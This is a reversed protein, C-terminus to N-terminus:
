VNQTVAIYIYKKGRANERNYVNFIYLYKCYFFHRDTFHSSMVPWFFEMFVGKDHVTHIM